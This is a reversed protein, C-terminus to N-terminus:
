TFLAKDLKPSSHPSSFNARAVFSNCSFVRGSLVVGNIKIEQKLLVVHAELFNTASEHVCVLVVSARHLRTEDFDWSKPSPCVIQASKPANQPIKVQNILMWKPLTLGKDM